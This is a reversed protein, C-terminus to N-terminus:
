AGHAHVSRMHQMVCASQQLLRVEKMICLDLNIFAGPRGSQPASSRRTTSRAGEKLALLPAEVCTCGEGLHRCMM